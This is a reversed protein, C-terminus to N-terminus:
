RGVTGGPLLPNRRNDFGTPGSSARGAEKSLLRSMWRGVQVGDLFVDGQIRQAGSQANDGREATSDADLGGRALSAAASTNLVNPGHDRTALPGDIHGAQGGMQGNRSETLLARGEPHDLVVHEMGVFPRARATVFDPAQPKSAAAEVVSGASRGGGVWALPLSKPSLLRQSFTQQDRSGKGTRQEAGGPSLATVSSLPLGGISAGSLVATADVRAESRAPAESKQRALPLARSRPFGREPLIQQLSSSSVQVDPDTMVAHSTPRVSRASSTAVKPASAPNVRPLSVPLALKTPVGDGALPTEDHMGSWVPPALGKSISAEHGSAIVVRGDTTVPLNHSPRFDRMGLVSSAARGAERLQETSVGVAADAHGAGALDKGVQVLAHRLGGSHALSLGVQDAEMM